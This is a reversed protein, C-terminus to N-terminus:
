YSFKRYHLRFSYSFETGLLKHRCFAAPIILPTALIQWHPLRSPTAPPPRPRLGWSGSAPFGTSFSEAAPPMPIQPQLGWRHAIKHMNRWWNFANLILRFTSFLIFSTCLKNNEYFIYCYAYSKDCFPTRIGLIRGHSRWQSKYVTSTNLIRSCKVLPGLLRNRGFPSTVLTVLWWNKSIRYNKLFIIV